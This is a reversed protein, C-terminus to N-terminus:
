EGLLERGIRQAESIEFSTRKARRDAEMEEKTPYLRCRLEECQQEAAILKGISALTRRNQADVSLMSAPLPTTRVAPRSELFQMGNSRVEAAVMEATRGERKMRVAWVPLESEPHTFLRELAARLTAM